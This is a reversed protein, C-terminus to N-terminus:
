RGQAGAAAPPEEAAHALLWRMRLVPEGPGYPCSDVRVGAKGAQRGLAQARAIQADSVTM